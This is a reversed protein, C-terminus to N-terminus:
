IGNAEADLCENFRDLDMRDYPSEELDRIMTAVELDAEQQDLEAVLDAEAECVPHIGTEDLLNGCWWCPDDSTVPRDTLTLTHGM